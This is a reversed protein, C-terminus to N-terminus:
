AEERMEAMDAEYDAWERVEEMADALIEFTELKWMDM